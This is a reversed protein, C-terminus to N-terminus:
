GVRFLFPCDAQLQKQIMRVVAVYGKEEILEDCIEKAKNPATFADAGDEKLGYSFFAETATISMLGSNDALMMSMSSKGGAANEIMKLRGISFKLVYNKGNHEFM